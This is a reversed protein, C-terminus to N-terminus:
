AYKGRGPRDMEQSIGREERKGGRFEKCDLRPLLGLSCGGHNINFSACENECRMKAERPEAWDMQPTPPQLFRDALQLPQKKRISM